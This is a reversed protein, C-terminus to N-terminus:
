GSSSGDGAQQREDSTLMSPMDGKQSCSGVWVIHVRTPEM